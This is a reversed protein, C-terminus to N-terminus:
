FMHNLIHINHYPTTVLTVVTHCWSLWHVPSVPQLALVQYTTKLSAVHLVKQLSPARIKPICPVLFQSYKPSLSIIFPFTIPSIATLQLLVSFVNNLASYALDQTLRAIQYSSHAM